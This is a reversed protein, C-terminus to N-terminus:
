RRRGARTPPCASSSTRRTWPGGSRAPAPGFCYRVSRFEKGTGGCDPCGEGRCGRCETEQKSINQENPNKCSWRLTDTGTPNLNPHLRLVDEFETPVGFRRYSNLFGLATLRRRRELFNDVFRFQDSDAPLTALYHAFAEKDLSPAATKAKPSYVPPLQLVDACFTRLSANVGGAPLELPYDYKAAVGLCAAGHRAARGSFELDLEDVRALSITVGGAEVDHAIRLVKRREEYIAWLGRERIAREMAPWLLLTVASDANAYDQLVTAWHTVDKGFYEALVDSGRDELLQRPLWGDTKWDKDGASPMDERGGAAIAWAKLRFRCYRRAEECAGHLADEFPQIDVGLYEVALATLDKPRNSALLHGALLTDETRGWPWRTGFAPRHTSLAAVDFKGNQMVVREAATVAAEIEDLDDDPVLVERTYPDVPWEWFRQTPPVGPGHSEAVTVLYPAAGHRLDLGTTESDLSLV